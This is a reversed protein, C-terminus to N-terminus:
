QNGAAGGPLAGVMRHLVQLESQLHSVQTRLGAMENMLNAERRECAVLADTSRSLQASTSQSMDVLQTSMTAITRRFEDVVGAAVAQEDARTVAAQAVTGALSATTQAHAVSSKASDAQEKAEKADQAIQRDTRSKYLGLIVAGVATIIAAIGIYRNTSVDDASPAAEALFTLVNM